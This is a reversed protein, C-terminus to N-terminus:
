HVGISDLNKWLTKPPLSPDLFWGMYSRKAWRVLCHVRNHFRKYLEWSEATKHSGWARHALNRDIIITREIYIDFWPNVNLRRVGRRLPVSQKFLNLIV